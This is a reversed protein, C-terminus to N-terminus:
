LALHAGLAEWVREMRICGISGLGIGRPPAVCIVNEGRPGWVSPNTEGFIAVVRVDLAAALHTVGSDNGVYAAALSLVGAINPLHMGSLRRFGEAEGILRTALEADAEGTCFVPEADTRERIRRALAIFRDLPWNKRSSGSGPHLIVVPREIAGHWRRGAELRDQPLRLTPAAGYSVRLGGKELISLFHDVAHRGQVLPSGSIVRRIGVAALNRAVAGEPDHLFSIAVDVQCLKDHLAGDTKGRGNFLRSMVATELSHRKRILGCEMALISADTRTALDIGATPWERRVAELAPLTLIFDGLAGGRLVMIEVGDRRLEMM